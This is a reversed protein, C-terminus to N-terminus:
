EVRRFLADCLPREAVTGILGGFSASRAHIRVRTRMNCGHRGHLMRFLAFAFLAHLDTGVPHMESRTLCARSRETAVARRVPVGGPVRLSTAMRHDRRGFGALAPQVAIRVTLKSLVLRTPPGSRDSQLPLEESAHPRRHGFYLRAADPTNAGPNYSGVVQPSVFTTMPGPASASQMEMRPSRRPDMQRSM